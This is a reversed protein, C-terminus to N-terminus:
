AHHSLSGETRGSSDRVSLISNDSVAPTLSPVINDLNWGSPMTHPEPFPEYWEPMPTESLDLNRDLM